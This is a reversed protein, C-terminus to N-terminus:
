YRDHIPMLESVSPAPVAYHKLRQQEVDVTCQHLRLFRVARREVGREPGGTGVPLPVRRNIPAQELHRSSAFADAMVYDRVPWLSGPATVQVCEKRLQMNVLRPAEGLDHAGPLKSQM